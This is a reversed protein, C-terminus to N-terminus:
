KKLAIAVLVYFALYCAGMLYPSVKHKFCTLSLAQVKQPCAEICKMCMVCDQNTDHLETVKNGMPCARSCANCGICKNEDVTIHVPSFRSFINYQARHWCFYRCYFNAAVLAFPLGMIAKLSGHMKFASTFSAPLTYGLLPAGAIILFMIFIPYKLYRAAKDVQPPLIIQWKPFFHRFIENSIRTITGFPCIWGCYFPGFIFVSLGLWLWSLRGVIAYKGLVIVTLVSCLRFLQLKTIKM